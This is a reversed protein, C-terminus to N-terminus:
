VDPLTSVLVLLFLGGPDSTRFSWSSRSHSANSADELIGSTNHSRNTDLLTKNGLVRHIRHSVRMGDSLLLVSLCLLSSIVLLPSLSLSPEVGLRRLLLDNDGIRAHKGAKWPIHSGFSELTCRIPLLCICWSLPKAARIAAMRAACADRCREALGVFHNYSCCRLFSSRLEIM